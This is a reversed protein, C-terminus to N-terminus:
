RCFRNNRYHLVKMVYLQSVKFRITNALGQRKYETKQADSYSLCLRDYKTNSARFHELRSKPCFCEYAHGESILLKANRSYIDLRQSQIVPEGDFKIGSWTLIDIMKQM